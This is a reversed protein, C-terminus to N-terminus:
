DAFWKPGNFGMQILLKSIGNELTDLVVLEQQQMYISQYRSINWRASVLWGPKVKVEM